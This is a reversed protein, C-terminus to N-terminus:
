RKTATETECLKADLLTVETTASGAVHDPSSVARGWAISEVLSVVSRLSRTFLPPQTPQSWYKRYVAVRYHGAPDHEPIWGVDLTTGDPLDIELMDSVLEEPAQLDPIGGKAVAGPPLALEIWPKM